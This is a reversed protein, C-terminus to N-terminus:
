QQVTKIVEGKSNKLIVIGKYLEDVKQGIINYREVIQTNITRDLSIIGLNEFDGNFDYQMLRYYYIENRVDKDLYSYDIISNSTGAATIKALNKWNTTNTRRELIFHSSNNESATKWNIKNYKDETDGKFSLLTVPLPCNATFTANRVTGCLDTVQVNWVDQPPVTVNITPTTEGTSWLYTYGPVGHEPTPDLNFNNPTSCTSVTNTFTGNGTVTSGLLELSRGQIVIGWDNLRICQNSAYDCNFNNRNCATRNLQFTFTMTQPLCSPAYNQIIEQTGLSNFPIGFAATGPVACAPFANCVWFFPAGPSQGGAGGLLRVQYQSFLCANRRNCRNATLNYGFSCDWPQTGGPFTVNLVDSCFAPNRVSGMVNPGAFVPGVVVTTPDITLPYEYQGSNLYISDVPLVIKGNEIEYNGFWSVSSMSNDFCIAPKIQLLVDGTQLDQVEVSNTSDLNTAISIETNQPFDVDDIFRLRKVNLNQKIIFNSKVEGKLFKISMDIDPFVDEIYAGDDGVSINSWDPFLNIIQNNTDTIELTYNNFSYLENYRNIQTKKANLDLTTPCLQRKAKYIGNGMPALIHDIALLQGNEEYHINTTSKEIYFYTPNDLDVYYRENLKRKSIVEVVNKGPPKSSTLKGFDPHNLNEPNYKEGDSKSYAYTTFSSFNLANNLGPAQENEQSFCYSFLLFTSLTFIKKM